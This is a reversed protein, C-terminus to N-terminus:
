KKSSKKSNIAKTIAKTSLRNEPALIFNKGEIGQVINNISVYLDDFNM